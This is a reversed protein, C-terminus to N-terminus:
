RNGDALNWSIQICCTSRHLSSHKQSLIKVIKLYHTMKRCFNLFSKEWRRAVGPRVWAPSAVSRAMPWHRRRSSHTTWCCPPYLSCMIYFSCSTVTVKSLLQSLLCTTEQQYNRLISTIAMKTIKQGIKALIQNGRCRGRLGKCDSIDEKSQDVM